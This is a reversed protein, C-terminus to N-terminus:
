SKGHRTLINATVFNIVALFVLVLIGTVMGIETFIVPIILTTSGLMTNTTTLITKISSNCRTVLLTKKLDTVIISRNLFDEMEM